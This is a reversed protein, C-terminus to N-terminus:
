KIWVPGWKALRSGLLGKGELRRTRQAKTTFNGTKPTIKSDERDSQKEPGSLANQCRGIM